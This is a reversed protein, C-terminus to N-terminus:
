RSLSTWEMVRFAIFSANLAMLTFTPLAM